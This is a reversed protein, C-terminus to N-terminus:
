KETNTHQPGLVMSQGLETPTSGQLWAPRAPTPGPTAGRLVPRCCPSRRAQPVRSAPRRSSSGPERRTSSAGGGQGVDPPFEPWGSPGPHGGQGPRCTRLTLDPWSPAHSSPRVFVDGRRGATSTGAFRGGSPWARTVPAVSTQQLVTRRQLPLRRGNRGVGPGWLPRPPPLVCTELQLRQPGSLPQPCLSQLHAGPPEPSLPCGQIQLSM